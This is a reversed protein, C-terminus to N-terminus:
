RPCTTSRLCRLFPIHFLILMLLAASRARTPAHTTLSLPHWRTRCLQARETAASASGHVRSPTHSTQKHALHSDRAHTRGTQSAPYESVHITRPLVPHLVLSRHRTTVINMSFTATCTLPTPEGAYDGYKAVGWRSAQHTEAPLEGDNQARTSPAICFLQCWKNHGTASATSQPTMRHNSRKLM